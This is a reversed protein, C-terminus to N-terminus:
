GQGWGSVGSLKHELDEEMNALKRQLSTLRADIDAMTRTDAEKQDDMRAKLERKVQM